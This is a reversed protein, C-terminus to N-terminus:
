VSVSTCQLRQNRFFNCQCQLVSFDNIESSVSFNIESDVSVSFYVSTFDNIESSIVSVSNIGGWWFLFLVM